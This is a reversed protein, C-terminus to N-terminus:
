RRSLCPLPPMGGLSHLAHGATNGECGRPVFRLPRQVGIHRAYAGHRAHFRGRLSSAALREIRRLFGRALRLAAQLALTHDAHAFAHIQLFVLAIRTEIRTLDIVIRGDDFAQVRGIGEDVAAGQAALALLQARLIKGHGFQAEGCPFVHNFPAKHRGSGVFKRKFIHFAGGPRFAGKHQWGQRWGDCGMARARTLRRALLPQKEGAALQTRRAHFLSRRKIFQQAFFQTAAQFGAHADHEGAAADRRAPGSSRGQELLMRVFQASGPLFQALRADHRGTRGAKRGQPFGQRFRLGNGYPFHQVAQGKLSGGITIRQGRNKGHLIGAGGPVIRCPKGSHATQRAFAPCFNFFRTKGARGCGTAAVAAEHPAGLRFGGAGHAIVAGGLKRM